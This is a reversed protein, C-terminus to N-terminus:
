SPWPRSSCKNGRVLAPNGSAGPIVASLETSRRRVNSEPACLKMVDCHVASKPTLRAIRIRRASWCVICSCFCTSRTQRSATTVPRVPKLSPCTRRFLSGYFVKRLSMITTLKSMGSRHAANSVFRNRVNTSSSKSKTWKESTLDQRLRRFADMNAHVGVHEPSSVVTPMSSDSPKRVNGVSCYM